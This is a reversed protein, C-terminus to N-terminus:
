PHAEFFEFLKPALEAAAWPAVPALHGADEPYFELRQLVIEERPAQPAHKRLSSHEPHVLNDRLATVSLLSQGLRGYAALLSGGRALPGDPLVLDGQEMWRRVQRLLDPSVKGLGARLETIRAAPLKTGHLLLVEFLDTGPRLPLLPTVASPTSSWASLNVLSEPAPGAADFAALLKRIVENPVEWRVPVSLLALAGVRAGRESGALLVAAAGGLGHGILQARPVKTAALVADLAAPADGLFLAELGGTGRVPLTSQGTGRWDLVFVDRGRRQLALALGDYFDHPFGLEPLLLIPPGSGSAPAAYRFLAVQAGGADLRTKYIQGPTIPADGAPAPWPALLLALVGLRHSWARM